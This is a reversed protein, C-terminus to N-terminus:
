RSAAAGRSGTSKGPEKRKADENKADENEAKKERPKHWFIGVEMFNSNVNLPVWGDEEMATIKAHADRSYNPDQFQYVEFHYPM